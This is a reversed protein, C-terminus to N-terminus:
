VFFIKHDQIFKKLSVPLSEISIDHNVIKQACLCKLPCRRPNLVSANELTKALQYPLLGNRRHDLHAGEELLLNVFPKIDIEYRNALIHIPKGHTNYTNVNLNRYTSLMWRVADISPESALYLYTNLMLPDYDLIVNSKCALEILKPYDYIVILTKFCNKIYSAYLDLSSQKIELAIHELYRGHKTILMSKVYHQYYGKELCRNAIGQVLPYHDDDVKLLLLVDMIYPYERGTGWVEVLELYMANGFKEYSYQFLALDCFLCAMYVIQDSGLVSIYKTRYLCLIDADSINRENILKVYEENADFLVLQALRIDVKKHLCYEFGEMWNKRVIYYLLNNITNLNTLLELAKLRRLSALASLFKNSNIILRISTVHQYQMLHDRIYDMDNSELAEIARDM